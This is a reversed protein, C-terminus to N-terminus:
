LLLFWLCYRLGHQCQGCLLGSRNFQDHCQSDPTSLNLHSPYQLCYHFPCHKSIYYSNNNVASIRTNAPCLITQTNIDCNTIVFPKLLPYCQCRGEIKMFGFPCPLQRVYFINYEQPTIHPLKLFLECWNDTPFTITYNLETCGRGIFQKVQMVKHVECTNCHAQSTDIEAIVEVNVTFNHLLYLPLSITEGPYFSGLDEKYCDYQKDNCYCLVKSQNLGPLM